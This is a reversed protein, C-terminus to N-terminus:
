LVAVECEVGRVARMSQNHSHPHLNAGKGKGRARQSQCHSSLYDILEEVLHSNCEECM